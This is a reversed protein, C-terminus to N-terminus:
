TGRAVSLSLLALFFASRDASVFSDSGTLTAVGDVALILVFLLYVGPFLATASLSLACFLLYSYADPSVTITRRGGGAVGGSASTRGTVDESGAQM